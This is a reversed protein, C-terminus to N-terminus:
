NEYNIKKNFIKRGKRYKKKKSQGHNKGERRKEKEGVLMFCLQRRSKKASLM